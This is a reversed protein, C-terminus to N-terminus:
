CSWGSRSATWESTITSTRILFGRYTRSTSSAMPERAPLAVAPAAVALLTVLSIGLAFYRIDRERRPFVLLLLAGALPLFTVITVINENIFNM